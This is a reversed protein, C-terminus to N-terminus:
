VFPPPAIGVKTAIFDEDTAVFAETLAERVIQDQADAAQLM